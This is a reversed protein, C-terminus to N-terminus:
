KKSKTNKTKNTTSKQCPASSTKNCSSNTATKNCSTQGSKCCAKPAVNANNNSSSIKTITYGSAEILQKIIKEESAVAPNYELTTTANVASVQTVKLVGELAEAKSKFKAECGGCHMGKVSLNLTNNAVAIVLVFFALLTLNIKKM